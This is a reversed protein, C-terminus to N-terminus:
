KRNEPLDFVGALMVAQTQGGGVNKFFHTGAVIGCIRARSDEVLEGTSGAAVYSIPTGDSSMMVGWWLARAQISERRIQVIRGRACLVHGRAANPDKMVKKPSTSSEENSAVKAIFDPRGAIWYAFLVAGKNIEDVTDQMYPEAFSLADPPLRVEAIQRLLRPMEPEPPAPAANRPEPAVQTEPQDAGEAPPTQEPRPLLAIMAVLGLLVVAILIRVPRGILPRTPAKPEVATSNQHPSPCGCRPCAPASTSISEGCERCPQLAM